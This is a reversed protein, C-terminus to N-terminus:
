FQQPSGNKSFNLIFSLMFYRRITNYTRESIFNSNIDRQFGLNQDLIDNASFRLRGADKKLFKREISANWKIANTNRAFADTKQRINFSCDSNIEFKWPLVLNGYVEHSQLWYATPENPRISSTTRYRSFRPALTLYFKKEKQFSINPGFAVTFSNNINKLRNIFNVSHNDNVSINGGLRVNPKNVKIFYYVYGNWSYNGQVNVPQSIRKGLADVYDMNSFANSTTNYSLNIYMSRQTLLKYNNLSLSFRQRFAQKLDPNGVRQYLLNTNDRIPQIQDITPAQTNGNYYFNLNTGGPLTWNVSARPFLNIFHYSVSTDAKVDRRTYDARAINGGFSLNIKKVKSYRYNIGGSNTLVNLSYDNSLSDVLDEYKTSSAAAKGYTAIASHGHANSLSYNFELIAKKSLPETYIARGSVTSQKNDRFKQQDTTEERKITGDSNYYKYDANLFGDTKTNNYLQNLNLSITRGQKAFKKRYLLSTNLSANDGQYTTRRKSTNVFKSFKDLSESYNDNINVSHGTYGQATIKLNSGSDLQHEYLGYITNRYKSSYSNGNENVYYLTDPLIYKSQTTGRADTNLKKYQYSGNLNKKDSDWKNGYLAGANWVKPLGEGYYSEGGFDDGNYSIYIGGDDGYNIDTNNGYNASEQWNLGTKGTNSMIGYGAFKRKGKFANVMATNNWFRNADTGLEAKGFYGRKRSEKLKLDITKIKQGDDIGTFTAQDSKKDYVQVKDVADATMNQTVITPDDSFFEEGDVLVKQVAEGQATIKGNRDVQIGPLQKLLDEVTAGTKLHFSDAKFETTDGKVRIAGSNTVIVEKLLQSKLTMFIKGLDAGAGTLEIDDIYDAYTPHTVLLIFKGAPLRNLSFNGAKDSRTHGLLVSDSKRLVAIVSNALNKKESSDTVAGRITGTQAFASIASAILLLLTLTKKM